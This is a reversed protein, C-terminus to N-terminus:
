EAPPFYSIGGVNSSRANFDYLRNGYFTQDPSTIGATPAIYNFERGEKNVTVYNGGNDLVRETYFVPTIKYLYKEEEEDNQIYYIRRDRINVEATNYIEFDVGPLLSINYFEMSTDTFILKVPLTRGERVWEGVLEQPVYPQPTEPTQTGTPTSPDDCSFVTLLLVSLFLFLKNKM